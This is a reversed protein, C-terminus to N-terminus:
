SYIMICINLNEEDKVGALLINELEKKTFAKGEWGNRKQVALKAAGERFNRKKKDWECMHESRM